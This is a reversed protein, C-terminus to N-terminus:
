HTSIDVTTNKKNIVETSKLAQFNYKSAPNWLLWEYIDNDYCAQMQALVEESNYKYGLSFDQLYPRIKSVNGEMRKSAYRLGTYVTKYPQSNPEAINYSEKPYHSPYVMPCIFDAEQAMAEFRQGIGMDRDASTTLGFVDVSIYLSYKPKLRLNAEKIFDVICQVATGSSHPQSYRCDKIIGDSPFRIYDFQIEEFGLNACQEAIEFTYAWNAKNFPDLWSLGKKDEWLGGEPNKVGWEPMKKAAITDKFVVIRAVTYIKQSKLKEIYNKIDPMANVYAGFEEAQKVGPIYVEGNAEKVAIVVTNLTTEDIYKQFKKRFKKSGASWATLHVGHVFKPKNPAPQQVVVPATSKEQSFISITKDLSLLIMCAVILIATSFIIYLPKKSKKM